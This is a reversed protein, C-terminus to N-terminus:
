TPRRLSLAKPSLLGHVLDIDHCPTRMAIVFPSGDLRVDLPEEVALTDIRRM